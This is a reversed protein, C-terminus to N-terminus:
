GGSTTPNGAPAPTEAPPPGGDAGPPPAPPPTGEPAAPPPAPPASVPAAPAALTQRADDLIPKVADPTAAGSDFADLFRRAAAELRAARESDVPEAGLASALEDVTTRAPAQEEAPLNARAVLARAVDKWLKVQVPRVTKKVAMSVQAYQAPFGFRLVAGGSGVLVLLVLLAKALLGLFSGRKPMVVHKGSKTGAM